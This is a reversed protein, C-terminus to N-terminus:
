AAAAEDVVIAPAADASIRAYAILRGRNDELALANPGAVLWARWDPAVRTESLPLDRYSSAYLAALDELDDAGIPRLLGGSKAGVVPLRTAAAFCFPAFGFPAFTATDGRLTALPLGEEVLAGLCDGLMAALDPEGDPAVLHDISGTDITAGDLHLRRHSLLAAGVLAGDREALRTLAPRYRPSSVHRDVLRKAADHTGIFVRLRALDEPTAAEYMRLDSAM